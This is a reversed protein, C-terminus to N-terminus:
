GPTSELQDTDYRILELLLAKGVAEPLRLARAIIAASIEPNSKATFMQEFMDNRSTPFNAM